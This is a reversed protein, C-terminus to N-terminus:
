APSDASSDTEKGNSLRKEESRWSLPMELLRILIKHQM